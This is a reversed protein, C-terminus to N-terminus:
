LEKVYVLSNHFNDSLFALHAEDFVMQTISMMENLEIISQHWGGLMERDAFVLVLNTGLNLQGGQYEQYVIEM